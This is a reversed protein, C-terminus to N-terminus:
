DEALHISFIANLGFSEVVIEDCLVEQQLDFIGVRTPCTVMDRVLQKMGHRVWGIKGPDRTRRLRTFGVACLGDDLFCLGRCWGLAYSSRAARRLDTTRSITRTRLDAVVVRGDVTTFYVEYGRTVGDHPGEVDIAIRDALNSVAVADRTEFRTAWIGGDAEYLFNPHVAHPKTSPVKRYDVGDKFREQRARGTLSVEDVIEGGWGVLMVSDLGTNAVYARRQPDAPDPLVHHVDNFLPLSVYGTLVRRRLELCLIETQTCLYLCGDRLTAAKFLVAAQGRPRAAPPSVYDFLVEGQKTKTDVRVVRGKRFITWEEASHRPWEVGGVVYLSSM